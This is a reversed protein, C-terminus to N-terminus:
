DCIRRSFFVDTQQLYQDLMQTQLESAPGSQRDRELACLTASRVDAWTQVKPTASLIGSVTLPSKGGFISCSASLKLHHRLYDAKLQCFLHWFHENHPGVENHALEHLLTDILNQYPLFADLDHTRLRIHIQAGFNVNYGLLRKGENELQEAHSDDIPDLEALVGVTWKRQVLIAVIAPDQCLKLLLARAEFAHPTRESPRTGFSQWTCPELRCFRYREHQHAKWESLEEKPAIEAAHSAARRDENEFGRITPDARTTLLQSIDQKGTAMVMCKIGAPLACEVLQTNTTLQKGKVLIKLHFGDLHFTSRALKFLEDTSATECISVREIRGKCVLQLELMDQIQHQGQLL